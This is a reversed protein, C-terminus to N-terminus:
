VPNLDQVLNYNLALRQLIVGNSILFSPWLIDKYLEYISTTTENAHFM